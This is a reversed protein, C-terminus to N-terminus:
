EECSVSIVSISSVFIIFPRVCNILYCSRGGYFNGRPSVCVTWYDNLHEKTTAPTATWWWDDVKYKDFIRVNERYFDFTPLGIKTTIKGYTDLGDLSTLDLEFEKINEAGVEAEIKPLIENNLKELIFSNAFNNDNGFKSDFLTDKSVCMCAGNEDTFKIFEIGAVTFTCDKVDAGSKLTKVESLQM